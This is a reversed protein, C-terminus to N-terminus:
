FSNQKFMDIGEIEIKKLDGNERLNWNQAITIGIIINILKLVQRHLEPKIFESDIYMPQHPM